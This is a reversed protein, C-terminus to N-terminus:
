RHRHQRYALLSRRAAESWGSLDDRANGAYFQDAFGATEFCEIARALAEAGFSDMVVGCQYTAVVAELAAIPSVVVPVRAGIALYLVGSQAKFESTYPLAMLTASAVLTNIDDDTLFRSEYSLNAPAMARIEADLSDDGCLGRLLFQWQPLRHAAGVFDMTGKNRRIQGVLIVTRSARPVGVAESPFIGIPVVVIPTAGSFEPVQAVEEELGEHVFIMDAHRMARREIATLLRRYWSNNSHPVVNHVTVAVTLGAFHAVRVILGIMWPTWEQLNVIDLQTRQRFLWKAFRADRRSYHGMRHLVWTWRFRFSDKPPLPPLIRVTKVDPHLSSGSNTATVHLAEAGIENLAHALSRVHM